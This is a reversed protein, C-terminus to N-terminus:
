RLVLEYSSDEGEGGGAVATVEVAYEGAGDFTYQVLPDRVWQFENDNEALVAQDPGLAYLRLYTDLRSRLRTNLDLILRQGASVRFCYWDRDGQPDITGSVNWNASAVRNCAAAEGNDEAEERVPGCASQVCEVGPECSVGCAGCQTADSRVDVCAGDCPTWGADCAGAGNCHDGGLCQVCIGADGCVPTDPLAACDDAGGCGPRCVGDLCRALDGPCQADADCRGCTWTDVRCMERGRCDALSRCGPRCQDAECVVLPYDGPRQQCQDDEWCLVCQGEPSCRLDRQCDRDDRCGVVCTQAECISGFPCHADQLCDVCVGSEPDCRGGDACDDDRECTPTCGNRVCRAGEGCHADDICEVCGSGDPLCRTADPCDGDDHCGAACLLDGCLFGRACDSDRLCQACRGTEPDCLDRPDERGGCDDNRRCRLACAGQDCFADEGCHADVLCAVCVGTARDCHLDGCPGGCPDAGEGEGEAPGEGEGETPGEGEGETPGEGEGETPGEGEGETPGEGEGEATGEGEGETPGEGEGEAPGEGEGEAPGEGEGEGAEGAPPDEEDACATLSLALLLPLWTLHTRM